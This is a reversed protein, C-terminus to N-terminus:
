ISEIAPPSPIGAKDFPCAGFFCRLDGNLNLEVNSSLIIQRAGLRSLEADLFNRADAMSKTRWGGGVIKTAFRAKQRFAARPWADPWCLPYSTKDSV